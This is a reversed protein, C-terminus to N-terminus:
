FLLKLSLRSLKQKDLGESPNEGNVYEVGLGVKKNEAFYFTAGVKLLDHGDRSDDIGGSESLDWWHHLGVAIELAQRRHVMDRIAQQFPYLSIDVGAHGRVTTGDKASVETKTADDVEVGATPAFLYLHLDNTPGLYNLHWPTYLPSFQVKYLGGETKKANDRKYAASASLYWACAAVPEPDLDVLEGLLIGGAAGAQFNDQEKDTTTKRHYEIKPGFEAESAAQPALVNIKLGADISYSDHGESPIEFFFSAPKELRNKDDASERLTVRRVANSYWEDAAQIPSTATTAALLAVFALSKM